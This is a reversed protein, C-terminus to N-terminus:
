WDRYPVKSSVVQVRMSHKQFFSTVAQRSLAENPTPGIVVRDIFHWRGALAGAVASMPSSKLKETYGDYSSHERPISLSCYPVLTSRTTRFELWEDHGYVPHAVLRYERENSFSPNKKFTAIRRIVFSFYDAALLTSDNQNSPDGKLITSATIAFDVAQDLAAQDTNDTYEVKKFTVLSNTSSSSGSKAAIFARELCEVRFGVAVGNGHSCYSRWQSLSDDDWSFSAVFPRKKFGLGLPGDKFNRASDELLRDFVTDDDLEHSQRYVPIHECILRLFHEGESTDNLYDVSTAWISAGEAMKMMADMTTYHYVILPELTEPSM